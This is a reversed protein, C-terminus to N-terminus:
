RKAHWAWVFPISPSPAAPSVNIKHYISIASAVERMKAQDRRFLPAHSSFMQMKKQNEKCNEKDCHKVTVRNMQRDTERKRERHRDTERDM